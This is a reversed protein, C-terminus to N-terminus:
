KLYDSLYKRLSQEMTANFDNMLAATLDFYVMDRDNLSAGEPLTRSREAEANAYLDQTTGNRLIKFSVEVRAEIKEAQETTFWGEITQNTELEYSRASADLISIQLVGTDGVAEVRDRVWRKIAVIPPIPFNHEINPSILPSRYNEVVEIYGVDFAITPLHSFAMEKFEPRKVTTTCGSFTLLVLSFTTIVFFRLSFSSV